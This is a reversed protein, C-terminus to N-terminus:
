KEVILEVDISSIIEGLVLSVLWRLKRPWILKGLRTPVLVLKKIKFKGKKKHSYHKDPNILNDFTTENFFHKHTLDNYAGKCHYYPVIIKIIAGKKAIRHLEDLVNTPDDLHELVNDILIYSFSDDKLPYPYSNFDFSRDIGKTKQIDVNFWGEKIKKGCGFNLKESKM